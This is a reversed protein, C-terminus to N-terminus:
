MSIQTFSVFKKSNRVWIASRAHSESPKTRSKYLESSFKWLFIIYFQFTARSYSCFYRIFFMMTLDHRYGIVLDLMTIRAEYRIPFTMTHFNRTELIGNCADKFLRRHFNYTLKSGQKWNKKTTTTTTGTQSWKIKLQFIFNIPILLLTSCFHQETTHM